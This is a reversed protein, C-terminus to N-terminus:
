NEPRGRLRKTEGRAKKQDVRRQQSGKSPKTAVRKRPPPKMASELLAVLREEAARRNSLQARHESATVVVLGGLRGVMRAKLADPFASSGGLDYTLQVRSDTTNVGQGGPGSARSFRWTLDTDPIIYAGVTIM